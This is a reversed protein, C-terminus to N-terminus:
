GGRGGQRRRGTDSIARGRWDEGELLFVFLPHLHRPPDRRAQAEQRRLWSRYSERPPIGSAMWSSWLYRRRPLRESENLIAVTRVLDVPSLFKAEFRVRTVSSKGLGGEILM